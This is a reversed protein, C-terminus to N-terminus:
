PEEITKTVGGDKEISSHVNYKIMIDSQFIPEKSVARSAHVWELLAKRHEHTLECTELSRPMSSTGLSFEFCTHVKDTLLKINNKGM